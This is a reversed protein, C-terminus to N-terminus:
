DKLCRVSFANSRLSPYYSVSPNFSNMGHAWAKYPGHSTSSWFLAAFNTFSWITNQHEVGTLFANFGSYGNFKLPNGAFGYGNYVNFLILWDTETPVHWGPPCLGKAAPTDDYNMLEDWQYVATSPTGAPSEYKEPICNDRQHRSAPVLSGYNLNAAMWCQGGIVVTPYAQNDRIDSLTGGCTFPLPALVSLTMPSAGSCGFGNVYSYSITHTGVGAVSPSFVGGSVGTGSYTGGQPLGGKLLFPRADTTTVPDNCLDFSVVPLPDVTVMVSAPTGPCGNAMPSASYTVTEINYGSNNLVQQILDGSGASYGSVSPSSGSASWTFSAGAVHSAIAVNSTMGSCLTQSPPTYFVDAVPFVTVLFNVPNGACSNAVPTVAYTVTELAFGSNLLTQNISLGTGGAFGSVNPSSPSATWNFITNAVTSQLAISTMGLNCVQFSTLPNSVIPTPNVTVVVNQPIGPPCGFASPYVTYTVTEITNGSNTLTQAIVNGSGPAFGSLNPSGPLATWTFTTGTVHSLNQISSAQGSCLTQSLPSFYIDPVQATNVTFDTVLGTCGNASPTIHYVVFEPNLGLNILTQAILPGSGPAFGTINASSPTCSWAFDAGTVHSTLAINTTNGSCTQTTLPNNSLDPMPNVTVVFDATPGACGSSTPTILYTVTGITFGSNTLGQSIVAGSGPSFGSLNASSPTCTWSFTSASVGSSLTVSFSTGTCITSSAPSTTVLPTPHVTVVVSSTAGTCGNAVPTVLYTVTEDLTGSNTLPQAIVNGSGPSFGTVNASSGTATWSFTAGGVHSLLQINPTQGSCIAQSAPLYYADAVPFVTVTFDTVPGTCGSAHPTIHYTVTELSFGTNTLTQAIVPGSGSAFGTVNASGPTVTWDFTSGTVDTALAISTVAGSCIDQTLPSNTVHPEPSVTVYYSTDFGICSGATPTITYKVEGATALANVLVQSILNGTGPNFGTVNGSVLSPTWVFATNLCSSTLVISTNQGSCITAQMPATTLHPQPNVTVALDFVPGPCGNSMPTVHYTVTEIVGSTSILTQAITNGSGPSFGSVNPSGGTATWSFTTPAVDSSLAIMTTQGSCISPTAPVPIVDPVPFVTIQATDPLGQCGSAAPTIVYTVTEATFGSNVLVQSILNGSGGSFGTINPSSASATWQYTTGTLSSQFGIIATDGTCIQGTYPNISLVPSPNIPLFVTDVNKCGNLDTYTYTITDIGAGVKSVDLIGGTVGRGKYVGGPPTGGTLLFPPTDLCVPSMPPFNVVPVPHVIVTASGSVTGSCLANSVSVLSYVGPTSTTITFPFPGSYSTVPTQPVGDLAYTFDLPPMGQPFQITVTATTIGDDCIQAGGSITAIPCIEQPANYHETLQCGASDSFAAHVDHQIGDCPINSLLYPQPSNFPANFTQSVPPVATMDTITLTGTAPPNTFEINGTLNYTNTLANCPTPVPSLAVMSCQVMINCNTTGQGPQGYNEQVISIECPHNAFNTILLIYFQGAIANPIDCYEVAAGSYSCDVMAGTTLGLLCAGTPSSFPGWCIFDIDYSPGSYLKLTINGSTGVQMYFWAPNPQSGLCSYQPGPLAAPEPSFGGGVTYPPVATASYTYTGSGCFPGAKHCSDNENVQAWAPIILFLLFISFLLQKKM